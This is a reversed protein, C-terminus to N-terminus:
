SVLGIAWKLFTAMGIIVFLSGLLVLPGIWWDAQREISDEDDEYARRVVLQAGGVQSFHLHKRKGEIVDALGQLLDILEEDDVTM